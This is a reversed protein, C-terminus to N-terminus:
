AGVGAHGRDEGSAHQAPPPREDELVTALHAVEHM